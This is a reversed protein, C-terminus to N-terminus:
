GRRTSRSGGGLLLARMLNTMVSTIASAVHEIASGAAADASESGAVSVLSAV